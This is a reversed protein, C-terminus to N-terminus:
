CVTVRVKCGSVGKHFVYKDTSQSETETQEDKGLTDM